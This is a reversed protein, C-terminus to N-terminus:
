TVCYWFMDIAVNTLKDKAKQKVKTVKDDTTTHLMDKAKAKGGLGKIRQRLKRLRNGIRKQYHELCEYKQCKETPYNNEIASFSSSDGDGFYKLYCLGYNEVSRSLIKVAAASEM